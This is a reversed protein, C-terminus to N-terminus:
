SGLSRRVVHPPPLGPHRRVLLSAAVALHLLYPSAGGLGVETYSVVTSYIILFVACAREPSPPRLLMLAFLCTLMVVVIGIGVFGLDQYTSLWGNDIPLGAFGGDTLGIGFVQHGPSRYEGLFLDWVVARGTLNSLQDADQGRKLWTLIPGSFVVLLPLGMWVARCLLRWARVRQTAVSALAPGLAVILGFLATRTHSLLLMAVSPVVIALFSRGDLEHVLWLITSLGICIVCWMAVQPPPIGWLFGVLRGDTYSFAISPLTVMGVFVSLAVVGVVRLHIHVFTLDGRWWRSLLWLTAVFLIMRFCRFLSGIGGELGLSSALGAITLVTLFCLYVNPRIRVQRNSILALMFAVFLASTTLVQAVSKPLAGGNTGLVNFLLLAWSIAVARPLPRESGQDVYRVRSAGSPGASSPGASSPSASSYLTM